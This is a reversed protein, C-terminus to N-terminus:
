EGRSNKQLKKNLYLRDIQKIEDLSFGLEIAKDKMKKNPHAEYNHRKGLLQDSLEKKCSIVQKQKM